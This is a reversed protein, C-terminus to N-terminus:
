FYFTISYQRDIRTEGYFTLNKEFFILVVFEMMYQSLQKLDSLHIISRFFCRNKQKHKSKKRERPNCNSLYKLKYM